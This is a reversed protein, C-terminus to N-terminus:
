AELGDVSTRADDGHFPRYFAARHACIATLAANRQVGRGQTIHGRDDRGPRFIRHRACLMVAHGVCDARQRHVGDFLCFGAMRAQRHACGVDRCHQERLEQFEIRGIRFPRVAVPEHQRGPVARHQDIRQQMEGAVLRHREVLELSEAPQMGLRRPMRLIEDRRADLGGGAREALADGIRDAHRDRLPM